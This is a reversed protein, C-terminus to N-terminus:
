GVPLSREPGALVPSANRIHRRSNGPVRSVPASHCCRAEFAFPKSFPENARTPPAAHTPHRGRSSAARSTHFVSGREVRGSLASRMRMLKRPAPPASCSLPVNERSFPGFSVTPSVLIGSSNSVTVTQKRDTRFRNGSRETSGGESDVGSGVILTAVDRRSEKM